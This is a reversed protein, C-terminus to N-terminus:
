FYPLRKGDVSVRYPHGQSSTMTYVNYLKHGFHLCYATCYLM